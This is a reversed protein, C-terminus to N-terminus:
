CSENPFHICRTLTPIQKFLTCEKRPLTNMKGQLVCNNDDWQM